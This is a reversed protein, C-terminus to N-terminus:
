EAKLVSTLLNESARLRPSLKDYNTWHYCDEDKQALFVNCISSTCGGFALLDCCIFRHPLVVRDPSIDDLWQKGGGLMALDDQAAWLSWVAECIFLERTRSQLVPKGTM